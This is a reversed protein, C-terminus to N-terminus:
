CGSGASGGAFLPSAGRLLAVGHSEFVLRNGAIRQGDKGTMGRGAAELAHQPGAPERDGGLERRGIRRIRVVDVLARPNEVAVDIRDVRGIPASRIAVHRAERNARQERSDPVRGDHLDGAAVLVADRNLAVDQAAGRHPHAVHQAERAVAHLRAIVRLRLGHEIEITHRQEVDRPRQAIVMMKLAAALDAERRANEEPCGLVGRCQRVGPTCLSERLLDISARLEDLRLVAVVQRQEGGEHLLDLRETKESLTNM